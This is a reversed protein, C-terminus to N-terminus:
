SGAEQPPEPGATKGKALKEVEADEVPWAIITALLWVGAAALSLAMQYALGIPLFGFLLQPDDWFWVDQHLVVLLVILIWIVYKM